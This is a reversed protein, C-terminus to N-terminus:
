TSAKSLDMAVIGAAHNRLFTKWGQSPPGSRRAMYKAVSTQGLHPKDDEDFDLQISAFSGNTLISFLQGARKLLPAQNERRFREISSQLLLCASRVRVYDTAIASM